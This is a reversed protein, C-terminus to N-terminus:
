NRAAAEQFPLRGGIRDQARDRGAMRLHKRYKRGVLHASGIADGGDPTLEQEAVAAMQSSINGALPELFENREQAQGVQQPAEAALRLIGPALDRARLFRVRAAKMSAVLTLAKIGVWSLRSSLRAPAACGAVGTFKSTGASAQSQWVWM